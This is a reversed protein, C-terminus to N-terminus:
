RRTRTPLVVWMIAGLLGLALFLWGFLGLESSGGLVLVLLGLLATGVCMALQM